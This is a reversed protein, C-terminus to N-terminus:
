IFSIIQHCTPASALSCAVATHGGHGLNRSILLYELFMTDGYIFVVGGVDWCMISGMMGSSCLSLTMNFMVRMIMGSMSLILVFVFPMDNPTEFRSDM